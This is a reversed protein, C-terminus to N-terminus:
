FILGKQRLYIEADQMTQMGWSKNLQMQSILQEKQGQRIINKVADTTLLIEMCCILESFDNADKLPKATPLLQQVIICNLCNAIQMRVASLDDQGFFGEMRLLAEVASSAHLTGLVLHGTEAANLSAQMTDGDRIEGVMLVDPDQRMAMKVADAFQQFNESYERQHILSKKDAFVYEIPEELTIIHKVYNNNLYDIMSALTSSKGSGTAGCILILGHEKQAMKKLIEANVFSDIAIIDQRILRVAISIGSMITYINLRFRRMKYEYACDVCGCRDFIVQQEEDLFIPLVARVDDGYFITNPLSKLRNKIRMYVNRGATLHIDSADNEMAIDLVASLKEKISVNNVSYVM